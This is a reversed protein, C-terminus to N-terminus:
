APGEAMLSLLFDERQSDEWGVAQERLKAFTKSLRAREMDVLVIREHQGISAFVKELDADRAVVRGIPLRLQRAM